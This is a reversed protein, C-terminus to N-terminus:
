EVDSEEPTIGKMDDDTTGAIGREEPTDEFEENEYYPRFDHPKRRDKIEEDGHSVPYEDQMEVQLKREEEQDQSNLHDIIKGQKEIIENIVRTLFKYEASESVDGIKGLKGIKSKM